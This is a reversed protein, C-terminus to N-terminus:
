ITINMDGQISRLINPSAAAARRRIIQKLPHVDGDTSGTVVVTGVVM